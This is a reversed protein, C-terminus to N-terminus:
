ASLVEQIRGRAYDGPPVFQVGLHSHRFSDIESSWVVMGQVLVPTGDADFRMELTVRAGAAAPRFTRIAAGAESINLTYGMNVTPKNKSRLEQSPYIATICEFPVRRFRRQEPATNQRGDPSGDLASEGIQTM